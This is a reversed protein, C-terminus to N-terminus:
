KLLDVLQDKKIKEPIEKGQKEALEKLEDVKLNKLEEETYKEEAEEKILRLVKVPEAVRAKILQDAREDTVEIITHPTRLTGKPNNDDIYEQDRFASRVVLLM